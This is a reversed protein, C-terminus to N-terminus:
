LDSDMGLVNPWWWCTQRQGLPRCNPLRRRASRGGSLLSLSAPAAPPASAASTPLFCSDREEGRFLQPNRIFWIRKLGWNEREKVGGCHTPHRLLKEVSTFVFPLEQALRMYVFIGANFNHIKIQAASSFIQTESSSSYVSECTQTTHRHLESFRCLRELKHPFQCLKAFVCFWKHVPNQMIPNIQNVTM